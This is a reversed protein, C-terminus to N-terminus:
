FNIKVAFQVARGGGTGNVGTGSGLTSTVYGFTASTLSTNPNSFQATNTLNFAEGRVDLRIGERITLTRSVAGNLAFMGPGSISHRGMTGLTTGSPQSFNSKLDNAFWPNGVDIGHLIEIPGLQNPTQATGPAGLGNNATFGLPTGTRASLVGSVNWGGFVKGAPGSALWRERRGFPLKYIYSQVYSLTRDYDARDYNRKENLAFLLGGDDGSQFNLAKGWTFSTTM